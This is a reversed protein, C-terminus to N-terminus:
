NCFVFSYLAKTLQMAQSIVLQSVNKSCIWGTIQMKDDTSVWCIEIRQNAPSTGQFVCLGHVTGTLDEHLFEQLRNMHVNETGFDSRIIQSCGGREAVARFYYGAIVTPNNNTFYAQMWIIHRSFGDICVNVAIGYLKLKDYSAMYWLYNQGPM